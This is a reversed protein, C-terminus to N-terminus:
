TDTHINLKVLLLSTAPLWRGLSFLMRSSAGLRLHFGRSVEIASTNSFYLILRVMGSLSYFVEQCQLWATLYYLPTGEWHTQKERATPIEWLVHFTWRVLHRGRITAVIRM